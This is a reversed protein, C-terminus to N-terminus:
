ELAQFIKTIGISARCAYNRSSLFLSIPSNEQATLDEVAIVRPRMRSFDISELVALDHGECDINVLDIEKGPLLKNAIDELRMTPITTLSEDPSLGEPPEASVLKNVAPYRRNMLYLAEGTTSSVAANLFHDRPRYKKWVDAWLPNPDIAVGTWGRQSFIYTNSFEIPHYCGIDIFVGETAEYGLLTTIFLDEGFQSYSIRCSRLAHWNRPFPRRAFKTLLTKFM